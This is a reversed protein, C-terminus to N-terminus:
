KVYVKKANGNQDIVINIGKQLSAVKVGTLTYIAAPAAEATEIGAIDTPVKESDTGYYTLQFEDLCTWQGGDDSWKVGFKIAGPEDLKVIVSYSQSESVSVEDNNAYLVADEASSYVFATIEYTGAPLSNVTQNIDITGNVHWKECYYSGQKNDFSTNSQAQASITGSDTWGTLNGTEFGPNVIVQTFDIPNDDSAEEYAPIKLAAIVNEIKEIMAEIDATYVPNDEDTLYTEGGDSPDGLEETLADYQDLAATSAEDAYTSYAEDLSEITNKLNAVAAVNKEAAQIAKNLAILAEFAGESDIAMTGDVIAAALLESEAKSMNDENESLLDQAESLKQMLVNSAATIDKGWFTLKFNAWLTWEPISKGDSTLGIAMDEGDEVLGFASQQYRGGKFAYSAGQMSNPVWGAGDVLYDYPWEGTTQTIYSNEMDIAEEEPLADKVINQVPTRFNNMYLYINPSETGDYSGNGAPREFAQCSIEYIGVPAGKVVQKVDVVGQYVEVNSVAGDNSAYINGAANGGNSNTWGNFGDKFSPNVLMNTADDGPAISGAIAAQLFDALYQTETTVAETDITRNLLIYASSGNPFRGPAEDDNGAALYESLEDAKDGTLENEGLYGEVEDIKAQYAKWAAINTVLENAKSGVAVAAAKIETTSSASTAATYADDYAQKVSYTYVEESFDYDAVKEAAETAMVNSWLKYAEISNGYYTLTFNDYISWDTSIQTEKKTGIRLKGNEVPIYLSTSKGLGADEFDTFDKMSNPVYFENNDGTTSGITIQDTAWTSLAPVDGTYTEDGSTGYLKAYRYAPNNRTNWDNSISGARYFANVSVKYIGNPIRKGGNVDQYTDYNKNYHEACTSTVGGAAFATGSWGNFDGITDFTPNTIFSTYDLPNDVSVSANAIVDLIISNADAVQEATADSNNYVAEAASFDLTPNEAKAEDIAKKLAVFDAVLAKAANVEELTSEDSNYVALQPTYTHADFAVADDIAQKLATLAKLLTTAEVQQEATSEPNDYIAQFKSYDRSADVAKAAAIAEGLETLPAILDIAAVIDSRSASADTVLAEYASYDATSGQAKASQILQGLKVQVYYLNLLPQVRNYEDAEVVAWTNNATATTIYLDPDDNTSLYSAGFYGNAKSYVFTGDEDTSQRIFGLKFTNDAGEEVIWGQGFNTLRTSNGDVWIGTAEGADNWDDATLHPDSKDTRTADLFAYCNYATGDITRQSQEQITFLDGKVDAKGSALASLTPHNGSGKDGNNILTARTGWYSGGSLFLGAEVNYLYVDTVGAVDTFKSYTVTPKTQAMAGVTALMASVLLLVSKKM